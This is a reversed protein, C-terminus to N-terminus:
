LAQVCGVTADAFQSSVKTTNSMAGVGRFQHEFGERAAAADPHVAKLRCLTADRDAECCNEFIQALLQEVNSM